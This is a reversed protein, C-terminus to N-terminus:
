SRSLTELAGLLERTSVPKVFYLACGAALAADRDDDLARGTLAVIPIRRGTVSTAIARAVDVGDADPLGMDLVVVDPQHHVALRLAEAGTGATEVDYGSEELLVTFAGRIASDDEVLLVRPAPATM